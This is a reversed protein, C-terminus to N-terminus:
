FRADQSVALGSPGLGRRAGPTCAVVALRRGAKTLGPEGANRPSKTLPVIRCESPVVWSEGPRGSFLVVVRHALSRGKQWGGEQWRRGALPFHLPLWAWVRHSGLPWHALSSDGAGLWVRQVQSAAAVRHCLDKELSRIAVGSLTSVGPM